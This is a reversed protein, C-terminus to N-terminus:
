IDFGDEDEEAPLVGIAKPLSFWFCSGQGLESVFGISGDMKEILAKSIKLGLGTGGQQRTDSSNAQAFASFIRHRFDLPIGPGCDTVKVTFVTTEEHLTVEVPIDKPSFKAANSLLNALVQMLRDSDAMVKAHFAPKEFHLSVQLGHAYSANAELAHEIVESLELLSMKMTMKGAMLKEMDLIDNVLTVLRQSNRHAVQILKAQAPSVAGAVGADLLALSGRISTVPTRLEHSVVSIFESQMLANSKRETIDILTGTFCLAQSIEDFERRISMEFWCHNGNKHHLRLERRHQTMQASRLQEFLRSVHDVDDHHVSDFFLQNITEDISFGTIETWVPNLFHWQGLEDIRFIVERVSNVLARYERESVEIKKAMRKFEDNRKEQQAVLDPLLASLGELDDAPPLEIHTHTSPELLKGAAERVSYLVRNRSALDTRMRENSALLESSSQELSRSRLNLDRDNEEYTGQVRRLLEELGGVFGRLDESLSLAELQALREILESESEINCIRRLQRALTRHM